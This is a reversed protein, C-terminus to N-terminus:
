PRTASRKSATGANASERPLSGVQPGLGSGPVQKWLPRGESPAGLGRRWTRAQSTHRSRCRWNARQRIMGGASLPEPFPSQRDPNFPM